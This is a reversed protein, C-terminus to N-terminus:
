TSIEATIATAGAPSGSQGDDLVGVHALVQRLREMVVSDACYRRLAEVAASSMQGYIEPSRAGVEYSARFKEVLAFFDIRHRFCRFVQREDHPWSSQRISSPLVFANRETIYDLMATHRPAIAPRGASMFEMLPLCQGEGDSTNVVYSTSDILAGYAADPLMGHILVIRCTFEGLKAIHELVPHLASVMDYHTLKLILTADPNNRFAWVFGAVMDPWNKRGDIPNLISTYVVGRLKLDDRAGVYVSAKHRLLRLARRARESDNSRFPTLDVSATDIVCAMGVVIEAGECWGRADGARFAERDFVPAPISWVPFGTGMARRVAMVSDSSHTIAVGTRKLVYRWDDRPNEGWAENPITDFEWAFVPITPCKLDVPVYQPPNFCLFASYQGHLRASDQILDVYNVPDSVPIVVGIQNLIRRFLKRVFWYSYEPAGLNSGVTSEDYTSHELLIM